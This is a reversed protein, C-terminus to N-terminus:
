TRCCCGVACHAWRIAPAWDQLPQVEVVQALLSHWAPGPWQAALLAQPAAAGAALWLRVAEEAPRVRLTSHGGQLPCILQLDRAAVRNHGARAASEILASAVCLL